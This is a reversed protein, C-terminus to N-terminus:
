KFWDLSKVVIYMTTTSFPACGGLAVCRILMSAVLACYPAISGAREAARAGGREATRAGGREVVRAGGHEAARAGGLGLLATTRAAVGGSAGRQAASCRASTTVDYNEDFAASVLTPRSACLRSASNM